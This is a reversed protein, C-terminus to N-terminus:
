ICSRSSLYPIISLDITYIEPNMNEITLAALVTRADKDQDSRRTVADTLLIAVSAEAINVAELLPVRTWDGAHHYLHELPIGEVHFDPPALESETVLVVARNTPTGRGFLERIITAGSRNWGCIVVHGTLEDLDMEQLELRKSFRAVMGASITGVFMGFITLGGVMLCLTIFNGLASNPTGGIPEGGVLSFVAFWAAGEFTSFHANTSGEALFLVVAAALVLILSGATLSTLETATGRFISQFATM